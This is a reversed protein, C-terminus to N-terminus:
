SSRCLALEIVFEDCYAKNKFDKKEKKVYVCINFMAITKVNHDTGYLIM